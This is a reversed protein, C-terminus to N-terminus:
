YPVPIYVADLKVRLFTAVGAKCYQLVKNGQKLRLADKKSKNRIKAKGANCRITACEFRNGQSVYWLCYVERGLVVVVASRKRRGSSDHIHLLTLIVGPSGNSFLVPGVGIRIIAM